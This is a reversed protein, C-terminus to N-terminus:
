VCVAYLSLFCFSISQCKTINEDNQLRRPASAHVVLYLIHSISRLLLEHSYCIEIGARISVGVYSEMAISGSLYM